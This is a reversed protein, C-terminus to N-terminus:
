QGIVTEIERRAPKITPSAARVDTASPDGSPRASKVGFRRISSTPTKRKLAAFAAASLAEDIARM